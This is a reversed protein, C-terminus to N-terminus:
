LLEEFEESTLDCNRRINTLLTPRIVEGGHVPVVTTRGDAQRFYFRARSNEPQCFNAANGSFTAFKRSSHSLVARYSNQILRVWPYLVGIREAMDPNDHPYKAGADHLDIKYRCSERPQCSGGSYRRSRPFEHNRNRQLCSKWDLRSSLRAM